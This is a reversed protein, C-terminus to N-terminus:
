GVTGLLVIPGTPAPSGGAPEISLGVAAYDTPQGALAIAFTNSGDAAVQVLGAPVPAGEGPILWLEYTQEAPLPPLGRLVLLGSEPGTYFIGSAQPADPTGALAVAREANAFIALQNRDNALQQELQRNVQVLSDMESELQAIRSQAETLQASITGASNGVGAAYVAVVLLAAMSGTALVPWFFNGGLFDRLREVWGERAVERRNPRPLPPAPLPQEQLPRAPAPPPAATRASQTDMASLMSRVSADAQVRAMLGAKVSAPPDVPPAALALQDAAAELEAVRALLSPHAALYDDVALMEDVELAGLVYAPLMELVAEESLGAPSNNLQPGRTDNDM